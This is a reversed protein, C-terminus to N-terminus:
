ASTTPRRLVTRCSRVTKDIRLVICSLLRGASIIIYKPLLTAIKTQNTRILTRVLPVILTLPNPNPKPNTLNSDQTYGMHACSRGAYSM